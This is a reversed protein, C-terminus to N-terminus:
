KRMSSICLLSFPALILNSLSENILSDSRCLIVIDSNYSVVPCSLCSMITLYTLCLRLFQRSYTICNTMSGLSPRLIPHGMSGTLIHMGHKVLTHLDRYFLMSIFRPFHVITMWATKQFNSYVHSVHNGPETPSGM